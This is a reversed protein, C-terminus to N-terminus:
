VFSRGSWVVWGRRMFVRIKGSRREIRSGFVGTDQGNRLVNFAFEGYPSNDMRAYELGLTWVDGREDTIHLAPPSSVYSETIHQQVRPPLMYKFIM